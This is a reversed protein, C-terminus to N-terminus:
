RADDATMLLLWCSIDDASEASAMLLHWWVDASRMLLGWWCVEDASRMLLGWWCVEDASKMLLSWWCVEDASMMLLSWWCVENTTSRYASWCKILLRWWCTDYAPTMPLCWSDRVKRRIEVYLQPWLIRGRLKSRGGGIRGAPRGGPRHAPAAEDHVLQHQTHRSIVTTSPCLKYIQGIVARFSYWARDTYRSM